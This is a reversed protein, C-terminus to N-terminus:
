HALAPLSTTCAHHAELQVSSGHTKALPAFMDEDLWMRTGFGMDIWMDSLKLCTVLGPAPDELDSKVRRQVFDTLAAMSTELYSLELTKLQPCVPSFDHNRPSLTTFLRDASVDRDASKISLTELHNLHHWMARINAKRLAGDGLTLRRLKVAGDGCIVDLVMNLGGQEVNSRVFDGLELHELSPIDLHRLLHTMDWQCRRFNLSKLSPLAVRPFEDHLLLETNCWRWTLSVLNPLARLLKIHLMNDGDCIIITLVRLNQMPKSILSEVTSIGCNRLTLTRLQPCHIYRGEQFCKLGQLTLSQMMPTETSSNPPFLPLLDYNSNFDAFFSRIRWLERHLMKFIADRADMDMYRNWCNLISVDLPHSKSRKIWLAVIELPLLPNELVLTAWFGPQDNLIANWVRCVQGLRARVRQLHMGANGFSPPPTKLKSSPICEIFINALIEAPLKRVPAFIPDFVTHAQVSDLSSSDAPFQTDDRQRVDESDCSHRINNVDETYLASTPLSPNDEEVSGKSM